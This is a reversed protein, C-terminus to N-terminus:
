RMRLVPMNREPLWSLSWKGSITQACSFLNKGRACLADTLLFRPRGKERCLQSLVDLATGLNQLASGSITSVLTNGRLTTVPNNATVVIEQLQCELSDTPETRDQAAAPLVLFLIALTIFVKRMM